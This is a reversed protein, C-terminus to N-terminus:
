RSCNMLCHMYRSSCCGSTCSMSYYYSTHDTRIHNHNRRIHSRCSRNHRNRRIHSCCSSYSNYVSEATRFHVTDDKVAIDGDLFFNKIHDSYESDAVFKLLSAESIPLTPSYARSKSVEAFIDDSNLMAYFNVAYDNRLMQVLTSKGSGNPGAIMRFRKTM